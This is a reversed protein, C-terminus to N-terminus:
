GDHFMGEKFGKCPLALSCCTHCSSCRCRRRVPLGAHDQMPLSTLRGYLMLIAVRM